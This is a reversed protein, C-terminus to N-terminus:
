CCTCGVRDRVDIRGTVAASIIATRYEHLGAPATNGKAAEQDVARRDMKWDKGCPPNALQYAFSQVPHQDNALTSGRVVADADRGTPDKMHLDAVSWIFNAKEAFNNVM